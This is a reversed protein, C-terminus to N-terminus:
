NRHSNEMAEIDSALFRSPIWTKENEGCSSLRLGTRM